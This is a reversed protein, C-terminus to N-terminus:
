PRRRLRGLPGCAGVLRQRRGQRADDLLQVLGAFARQRQLEGEPEIRQVLRAAPGQQLEDGPAQADADGRAEGLRRHGGHAPEIGIIDFLDPMAELRGIEIKEGPHLAALGAGDGVIGRGEARGHQGMRQVLRIEGRQVRGLKRRLPFPIADAHLSDGAKVCFAGAHLPEIRARALIHGVAEGIQQLRQARCPQAIDGNVPLQQHHALPQHLGEAHQLLPEVALAHRRFQDVFVRQM